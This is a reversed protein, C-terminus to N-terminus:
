SPQRRRQWRWSVGVFLFFHGFDWKVASASSLARRAVFTHPDYPVLQRQAANGKRFHAFAKEYDGVDEYAKGLAFDLVIRGQTDLTERRSAEELVRLDPDDATFRKSHALTLYGDTYDPALEVARRVAEVSKEPRSSQLHLVALNKLTEIHDPRVTLAQEVAEIAEHIRGDQWLAQGLYQHAQFFDPSLEIARRYCAVAKALEGDEHAIRGGQFVSDVDNEAGPDLAIRRHAIQEVEERYGLDQLVRELNKLAALYDPELALAQWYHHVARAPQRTRAFLGGLSNYYEAKGPRLEVARRLNALSDDFRGAHLCCLALLHYGDARAGGVELARRCCAEAQDLRRSRLHEAAAQLLQTPKEPETM